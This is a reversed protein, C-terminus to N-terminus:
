HYDGIPSTADGIPSKQINSSMRFKTKTLKFYNAYKKPLNAREYSVPNM